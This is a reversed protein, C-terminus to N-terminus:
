AFSKGAIDTLQRRKHPTHHVRLYHAPLCDDSSNMLNLLTSGTRTILSHMENTDKLGPTYLTSCTKLMSALRKMEELQSASKYSIRKRDHHKSHIPPLSPPSTRQRVFSSTTPLSLITPQTSTNSEVSFSCRLSSHSQYLVFTLVNSLFSRPTSRWSHM